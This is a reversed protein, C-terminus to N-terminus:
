TLLGMRASAWFGTQIGKRALGLQLQRKFLVALRTPNASGPSATILDMEAAARLRKRYPKLDLQEV